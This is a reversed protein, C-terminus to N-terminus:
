QADTVYASRLQARGVVTRNSVCVRCADAGHHTIAVRPCVDDLHLMRDPVFHGFELLAERWADVVDLDVIRGIKHRLEMSSTMLVMKLAIRSTTTTTTRTNKCFQRAVIMGTTAMGIENIPVKVNRARNSADILLKDSKPKTRATPITTSSAITTTSFM